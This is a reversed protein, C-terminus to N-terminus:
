SFSVNRKERRLGPPFARGFQWLSAFETAIASKHPPSFFTASCACAGGLTRVGAVTRCWITLPCLNAIEISWGDM